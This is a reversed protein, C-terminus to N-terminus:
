KKAVQHLKSTLDDISRSGDYHTLTGDKAVFLISPFSKVEADSGQVYKKIVEDNKNEKTEQRYYVHKEAVWGVTEPIKAFEEWDHDFRDCYPCGEMSIYLVKGESEAEAKVEAQHEADDENKMHEVSKAQAAQEPQAATSKGSCSSYMWYLCAAVLATIVIMVTVFIPNM